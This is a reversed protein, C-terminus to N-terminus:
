VGTWELIQCEGRVKKFILFAYGTPLIPTESGEDVPEPAEEFECTNLSRPENEFVQHSRGGSSANFHFHTSSIPRVGTFSPSSISMPRIKMKVKPLLPFKVKVAPVNKVPSKIKFSKGETLVAFILVAFLIIGIVMFAEKAQKNPDELVVDRRNEFRSLVPKHATSNSHLVFQHAAVKGLDEYVPVVVGTYRTGRIPKLDIKTAYQSEKVGRLPFYEFQEESTRSLEYDAIKQTSACNVILFCCVLALLRRHM